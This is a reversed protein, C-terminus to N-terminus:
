LKKAATEINLMWDSGSALIRGDPAVLIFYPLETIGWKQVLPSSFNLYDCYSPFDISDREETRYLQREDANLSYSLLEIEKGRGKMERRLRRSRYIASKSGSKWDMANQFYLEGFLWHSDAAYSVIVSGDASAGASIVVNTCADAKTSLGALLLTAAAAYIASKRMNKFM